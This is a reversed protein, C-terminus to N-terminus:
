RPLLMSFDFGGTMIYYAGALTAILVLAFIVLALWGKSRRTSHAEIAPHYEKTDFVPREQSSVEKDNTKYQQPIAMQRLDDASPAEPEQQAPEPHFEAEASEVAMVEPSLEKPQQVTTLTPKNPEPVDENSPMTDESTVSDAKTTEAYAGLPRKEVKKTVFPTSTEQADPTKDDQLSFGHVDLPDPWEGLAPAESVQPAPQHPLVQPTPEEAEITAKTPQLTPALRKTQSSPPTLKSPAKPGVVDMARGHSGRSTAIKPLPKKVTVAITDESATKPPATTHPPESAVSAQTRSEAPAKKSKGPPDMLANVAQHLEDFDLEKNM